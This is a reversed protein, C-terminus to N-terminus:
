NKQRTLQLRDVKEFLYKKVIILNSVSVKNEATYHKFFIDENQGSSNEISNLSFM